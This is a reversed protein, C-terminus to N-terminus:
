FSVLNHAMCQNRRTMHSRYKIRKCGLCMSVCQRLKKCLHITVLQHWPFMLTTSAIWLLKNNSESAEQKCNLSSRQNRSHTPVKRSGISAKKKCDFSKQKFYSSLADLCMSQSYSCLDVTRVSAGVTHLLNGMDLSGVEGLLLPSSPQIPLAPKKCHAAGSSRWYAAGGGKSQM